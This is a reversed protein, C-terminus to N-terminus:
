VDILKRLEPHLGLRFVRTLHTGIKVIEQGCNKCNWSWTAGKYKLLLVVEDKEVSTYDSVGVYNDIHKIQNQTQGALYERMRFATSVKPNDEAFLMSRCLCPNKRFPKGCGVCHYTTPDSTPFDFMLSM